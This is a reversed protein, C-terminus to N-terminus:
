ETAKKIAMSVIQRLTKGSRLERDANHLYKEAITLAELLEPAAVILKANAEQMEKTKENGNLILLGIPLNHEGARITLQGYDGLASLPYFRYNWKEKTHEM